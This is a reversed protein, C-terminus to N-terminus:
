EEQTSTPKRELREQSLVMKKRHYDTRRQETDEEQTRMPRYALCPPQARRELQCGYSRRSPVVCRHLPSSCWVLLSDCVFTRPCELLSRSSLQKAVSALNWPSFMLFFAHPISSLVHCTRQRFSISRPNCAPGLVFLRQRRPERRLLRRHAQV